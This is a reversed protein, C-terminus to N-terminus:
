SQRCPLPGPVVDMDRPRIKHTVCDDVPCVHRCMLCGVCREEDVIPRRDAGVTGVTGVTGFSIAQNGADQCAIYCQGCGVCREADIVSVAETSHDLDAPDVLKPLAGGVIQQVSTAGQSALYDRLGDKLDEVIRYGFRMVGTTIQLNGSGLLLFECADRWTVIGGMGSIPLGLDKAKALEAIFRLAIPRDAPGSFGSIASRGDITPMPTQLDLNLGSISKLTNIASIGDAGGRKAALAMPVMDTINPTMKAIVPVTCGRKAAATYREIMAHDQGVKHGAGEAAMQPCSFNLELIHAGAGEAARALVTWDGEDYGMISVGVVRDPYRKRLLEIDVLNDALPRDTIQEVNQLGVTRASGYHLANLRPSPHYVRHKSELGLTKYYVGGFGADFARACMEASNSVPSSSLCFPNPFRVGCFDSALSPDQARPAVPHGDMIAAAIRKGDGIAEVVTAGGRAADGAAFVHERSSQGTEESVTVVGAAGRELGGLLAQSTEDFTQGIALVVADVPIRGESGPLDEANAPLFVGPEKWAIEVTEVGVVTNKETGTGAVVRTIRTSPRFVVARAHALKVEAADAPLEDVAELSACVVRVAGLEVATNAADMAVSGGGIVLVRKGQCLRAAEGQHTGNDGEVNASSLFDTATVVQSLDSGELPFRRGAQLGPTVVVEDYAEALTDLAQQDAVPEDCRITVGMAEIRAVEEDILADGLRIPAIGYRLMGGAKARAEFITVEAGRRALERAAALGAPGAGVIAVRKGSPEPVPPLTIGLALGQEHLGRQVAGIRIPRDIGIRSCAEECLRDVPCVTGCIGGLPNNDLVTRAAGSVNEFRLQRLFRAPDTDAPCAQSCPADHCLLCREAELKASQLDLVTASACPHAHERTQQTM